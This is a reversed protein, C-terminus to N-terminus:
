ERETKGPLRFGVNDTRETHRVAVCRLGAWVVRGVKALPAPLWLLWCDRTPVKPCWAPALCYLSAVQEVPPCSVLALKIRTLVEMDTRSTLSAVGSRSAWGLTPLRCSALWLPRTHHSSDAESSTALQISDLINTTSTEGNSQTPRQQHERGSESDYPTHDTLSIYM